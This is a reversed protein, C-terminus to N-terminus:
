QGFAIYIWKNDEEDEHAPINNMFINIIKEM